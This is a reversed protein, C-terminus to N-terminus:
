EGLDQQHYVLSVNIVGDINRANEMNELLIRQNHSQMVVVLKGLKPDSGHIETHPVALLAASIQDLKEPRGQVVVGCVHWEQANEMSINVTM